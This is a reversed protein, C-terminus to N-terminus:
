SNFGTKAVLKDGDIKISTGTGLWLMSSDSLKTNPTDINCRKVIKFGINSSKRCHPIEQKQKQKQKKKNKNKKRM